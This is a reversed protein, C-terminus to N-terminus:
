HDWCASLSRSLSVLMNSGTHRIDHVCNPLCSSDCGHSTKSTIHFHYHHRFALIVKASFGNLRMSIFCFSKNQSTRTIYQTWKKEEFQVSLNHKPLPTRRPPYMSIHSNVIVAVITPHPLFFSTAYVDHPSRCWRSLFPCAFGRRIFQLCYSFFTHISASPPQFMTFTILYVHFTVFPSSSNKYFIHFHIRTPLSPHNHALSPDHFSFYILWQIFYLLIPIIAIVVVIGISTPFSHIL